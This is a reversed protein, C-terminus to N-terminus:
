KQPTNLNEHFIKTTVELNSKLDIRFDVKQQAMFLEPSAEIYLM